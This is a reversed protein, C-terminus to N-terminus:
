TWLCHPSRWPLYTDTPASPQPSPGMDLSLLSPLCLLHTLSFLPHKLTWQPVPAEWSKWFLEQPFHLNLSNRVSGVHCHCVRIPCPNNKAYCPCHARKLSLRLKGTQFPNSDCSLRLMIDTNQWSRPSSCPATAASLSTVTQTSCPATNFCHSCM